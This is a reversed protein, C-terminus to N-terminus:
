RHSVWEIQEQKWAEFARVDKRPQTIRLYTLQLATELDAPRASGTVTEALESYGVSVHAVKGALVKQLAIADFDGVGMATVLGPVRIHAYDADSVLSSGGIQWGNFRVEDNQFTTPKIVVRIGNSLTWVTSGTAADTTTATVKGPAPLKALLP